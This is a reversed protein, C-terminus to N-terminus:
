TDTPPEKEADASPGAEPKEEQLHEALLDDLKLGTLHTLTKVLAILVLIMVAMSPLMVVIYGLGTMKGIEATFAETGPVSKLIVKALGYNLASSLFFSSALGWTLGVLRKEFLKENGTERLKEHLLDVNFLKESMLFKKILPYPTKLSIVFVLGIILPIAAEKIAIWQPPLKLIGFIGTLLVSVVGIISVFDARREKILTHIGYGIPLILAVVLGWLPGLYKDKSLYTLVIVPIVVNLMVSVMPHEEKRPEKSM